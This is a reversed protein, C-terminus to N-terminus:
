ETVLVYDDNSSTGFITFDETAAYENWPGGEFSLYVVAYVEAFAFYTDADFLLDIGHYFGDRDHDNFLVVDATYFWFDINASQAGQLTAKSQATSRKSTAREGTAELAGFEDESVIGAAGMDRGAKTNQTTISLRKGASAEAAFVNASFIILGAVLFVAILLRSRNVSTAFTEM